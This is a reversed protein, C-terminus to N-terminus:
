WTCLHITCPLRVGDTDYIYPGNQVSDLTIQDYILSASEGSTFSLSSSSNSGANLNGGPTATYPAILIYGPSVRDADFVSFNFAPPTLEPRQIPTLSTMMSTLAVHAVSAVYPSSLQPPLASSPTRSWSSYLLCQKHNEPTPQQHRFIYICYRSCVNAQNFNYIYIYQALSLPSLRIELLRKQFASRQSESFPCSMTRDPPETRLDSARGSLCSDTARVWEYGSELAAPQALRPLLLKSLLINRSRQIPIAERKRKRM